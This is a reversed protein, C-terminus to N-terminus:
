RTRTRVRVEPTPAPVGAPRSITRVAAVPAVPAPVADAARERRRVQPKLAADRAAVQAAVEKQVAAWSKGDSTYAYLEANDRLDAPPVFEEGFLRAYNQPSLGLGLSKLISHAAARTSNPFERIPLMCTGSTLDDLKIFNKHHHKVQSWNDALTKAIQDFRGDTLIPLDFHYYTLSAMMYWSVLGSPGCKEEVARSMDDAYQM